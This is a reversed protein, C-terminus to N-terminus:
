CEEQIVAVVGDDQNDVGQLAVEFRVVKGNTRVLVDIVVNSPGGGDVCHTGREKSHALEDVGIQDVGHEWGNDVQQRMGLLNHALLSDHSQMAELLKVGVMVARQMANVEIAVKSLHQTILYAQCRKHHFGGTTM